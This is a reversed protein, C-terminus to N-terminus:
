QPTQTTNEESLPMVEVMDEKPTSYETKFMKVFILFYSILLPGFVLGPLGFINLGLFVGLFTIIPHVDGMKSSIYMRILNDINGLILLCGLGVVIGETYSGMALLIATIPVWIIGTGVLPIISAAGTLIAWLGADIVGAYLYLAYAILGQVIAIVPVGVANIFTMNRLEVGLRKLNIESLPLYEVLSKELKNYNVLFYYLLFYMVVITTLVGFVNNLIGTVLSGLISTIRSIMSDVKIEVPLLEIKQMIMERIENIQQPQNIYFIVKNAILIGMLTFPLVVIFFSLLIIILASISKNVKLKVSMKIMMRKFLIYFISAGLAATIFATLNAIIVVGIGVILFLFIYKQILRDNNM